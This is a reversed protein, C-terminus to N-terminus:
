KHVNYQANYDLIATSVFKNDFVEGLKLLIQQVHPHHPNKTGTYFSRFFNFVVEEGMGVYHAEDIILIGPKTLARIQGTEITEKIMSIRENASLFYVRYGNKIAEM